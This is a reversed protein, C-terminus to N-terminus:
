CIELLLLPSTQHQLLIFSEVVKLLPKWMLFSEFWQNTQWFLHCRYSRSKVKLNKFTNRREDRSDRSRKLLGIPFNNKLFMLDDLIGSSADSKLAWFSTECKWPVFRLTCSPRGSCVHITQDDMSLAASIDTSWKRPYCQLPFTVHAPFLFCIM